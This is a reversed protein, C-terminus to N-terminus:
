LDDSPIEDGAVGQVLTPSTVTFGTVSEIDRIVLDMPMMYAVRTLLNAAFGLGVVMAKKRKQTIISTQLLVLSGSDGPALFEENKDNSLIGYALVIKGFRPELEAPVVSARDHRLRLYSGIKSIKGTTWESTRGFKAVDYSKHPDITQYEDTYAFFPVVAKKTATPTRKHMRRQATEIVAWDMAWDLVQGNIKEHLSQEAAKTEAYKLDIVRSFKITQAATYMANEVGRYGSTALVHGLLRSDKDFTDITKAQATANKLAQKDEDDGSDYIQMRWAAHKQMRLHDADSPSQAPIKRENALTRSATIPTGLEVAKADTHRAIIHHNTIACHVVEATAQDRLEIYGGATGSFEPEVGVSSGMPVIPGYHDLSTFNDPEKDRIIREEDPPTTHHGIVPDGHILEIDFGVPAAQRLRPLVEDWWKPDNTDSATIYMTPSTTQKVQGLSRMLIDISNWQMEGLEQMMQIHVNHWAQVTEDDEVVANNFEWAAEVDVIEVNIDDRGLAILRELITRAAIAWNAHADVVSIDALVIVTKNYESDPGPTKFPKRIVVEVDYYRVSAERLIQHVEFM